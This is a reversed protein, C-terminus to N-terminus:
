KNPPLIEIGHALGVRIRHSSNLPFLKFEEENGPTYDYNDGNGTLVVKYHAENQSREKEGEALGLNLRTEDITPWRTETTKGSLPIDRNHNWEWNDWGYWTAYRPESRYRHETRYRTETRTKPVQRTKTVTCYRTTCSQDGGTCTAYGNKNSTCTRPTTTCSQGCSEQATYTETRFGDPVEVTYPVQDDHDWVQEDHHHRPGLDKINFAEAPRKEAFSEHHAVAYRDVHVVHNWTVSTVRTDLVRTRFILWMILGLGLVGFAVGLYTYRIWARSEYEKRLRLAYERNTEAPPAPKEQEIQRQKKRRTRVPEEIRLAIDQNETILKKLEAGEDQSSGCNACTGDLKRQSSDCYRCKWDEGATAHRLQEPDTVAAEETIDEPM